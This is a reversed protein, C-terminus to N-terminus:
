FPLDFDDNLLIRDKEESYFELIDNITPDKKEVLIEIEPPKKTKASPYYKKWDSSSTDSGTSIDTSWSTTGTETWIFDAEEGM